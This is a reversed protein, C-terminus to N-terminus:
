DDISHWKLIKKVTSSDPKKEFTNKIFGALLPQYKMQLAHISITRKETSTIITLNVKNGDGVVIFHGTTKANANIDPALEDKSAKAVREILHGYATDTKLNIKKSDRTYVSHKESLMNITDWALKSQPNGVNYKISNAYVRQYNADKRLKESNISDQFAYYISATNQKVYIDLLFKHGDWADVGNIHIIVDGKSVTEQARLGRSVCLLIMTLLIRRTTSM